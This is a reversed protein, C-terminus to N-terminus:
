GFYFTCKEILSHQSIFSTPLLFVSCFYFFVLVTNIIVHNLLPKHFILFIDTKKHFLIRYFVISLCFLLPAMEDMNSKLAEMKYLFTKNYSHIKQLLIIAKNYDSKTSSCKAASYLSKQIVVFSSLAKLFFALTMKASAM